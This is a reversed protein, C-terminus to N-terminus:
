AESATANNGVPLSVTFTSGQNLASSVTVWGGHAEVIHKVISLGLGTGGSTRSRGKDVRYFREFIRRQQDSSIGIGSDRVAVLVNDEGPQVSVGVSGSATYNVANDILNLAVQTMQAQNAEIVCQDPGSYNLTLGKERAKDELQQAVGRFVEAIDCAQKRVPNSEATSLILLDQSITSLRDVETIIKNLYRDNLAADPEDLLTEAM